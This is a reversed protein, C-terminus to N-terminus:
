GSAGLGGLVDAAAAMARALSERMGLGSLRAGLYAGTAADGAGTTDLVVTRQSASAVSDHADWAVAGDPGRTLLGERALARLAGLGEAWPAGALLAAEEENAFLFDVGAVAGAFASPGIEALPAVSCVDVSSTVGARRARALAAVAVARTAPDLVSYGSVHLHEFPASLAEAVFDASLLANAGRASYMARQGDPGVLAVVVGTPADVRELRPTLAARRAHADWLEAAADTGCAGVYTVDHGASALGAAVNAGSGGRSVRVQSATDSTPASPGLPRVVVDLMVDGLLTVRM